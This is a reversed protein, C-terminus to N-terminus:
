PRGVAKSAGTWQRVAAAAGDCRAFAFLQPQAVALYDVVRLVISDTLSGANFSIIENDLISPDVFLEFPLVPRGFPPVSGSLLGTLGYLEAATAFRLHRVDFRRKIAASDLQRAASLVFLRFEDGMKLLLSKGGIRLEEGRARASDESTPTPEHHVERFPAGHEQLLARIADFVPTRM